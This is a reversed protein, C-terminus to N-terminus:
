VRALPRLAALTRGLATDMEEAAPAPAPEAAMTEAPGPPLCPEMPEMPETPEIPEPAVAPMPGLHLESMSLPARRRPARRAAPRLALPVFLLLAIGASAAFALWPGAHPLTAGAAVAAAALSVLVPRYHRLFAQM